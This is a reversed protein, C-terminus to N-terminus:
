TNDKVLGKESLFATLEEACVTHGAVSPHGAGGENNRTLAVSYLGRDEGGMERIVELTRSIYGNSMMNYAWVIPMDVGYSTRVLNILDAVAAKFDEKDSPFAEDNTGLNIVVIDPVRASAFDFPEESRIYSLCPWYDEMDFGTGDMNCWGSFIGIGSRNIISVDADLARATLYSYALTGDQWLSSNHDPSGAPPAGLLLNGCGGTISDGIFEIYLAKEETPVADGGFYSLGTIVAPSFIPESQKVIEITYVPCDDEADKEPLEVTIPTNTGSAEYRPELRVGDAFVTFYATASSTVTFTLTDRLPASFAVGTGVFDCLLGEDTLVTRGLCRTVEALVSPTLTRNRLAPLTTTDTMEDTEKGNTDATDTDVDGRGGCAPLVLLMCLSLLLATIRQFRTSKM